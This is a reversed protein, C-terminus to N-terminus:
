SRMRRAAPAPVRTGAPGSVELKNVRGLADPVPRIGVMMMVQALSEGYTKINDTGWLVLAITSDALLEAYSLQPVAPWDRRATAQSQPGGACIAALQPRLALQPYLQPLMHLVTAHLRAIAGYGIIGIRYM